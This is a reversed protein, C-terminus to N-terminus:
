RRRAGRPLPRRRDHGNPLKARVAQRYPEYLDICVVEVGSRQRESLSGLYRELVCRTRGDLVEHIIRRDLDSVVTALNRSGKRHAAEDLSLRKPLGPRRAQIAEAAAIRM